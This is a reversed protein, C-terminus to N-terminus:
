LPFPSNRGIRSVGKIEMEIEQIRDKINKIKSQFDEQQLTRILAKSKLELTLCDIGSTNSAIKLQCERLKDILDNNLSLHKKLNNNLSVLEEELTM